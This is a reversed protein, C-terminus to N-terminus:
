IWSVDGELNKLWKDVEDDRETGMECGRQDPKTVNAVVNVLCGLIGVLAKGEPSISQAERRCKKPCRSSSQSQSRSLVSSEEGEEENEGKDGNDGDDNASLRMEPISMALRQRNSWLNLAQLCHKKTAENEEDLCGREEEDADKQV